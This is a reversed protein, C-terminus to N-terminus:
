LPTQDYRDYQHDTPQSYADQRDRRPRKGAPGGRRSLNTLRDVVVVNDRHGTVDTGLCRSGIIAPPHGIVKREVMQNKQQPARWLLLALQLLQDALEFVGARRIVM